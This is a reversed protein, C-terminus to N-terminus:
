YVKSYYIFYLFISCNNSNEKGKWLCPILLNRDDSVSPTTNGKARLEFIGSPCFIGKVGIKIYVNFMVITDEKGIFIRIIDGKSMRNEQYKIVTGDSYFRHM